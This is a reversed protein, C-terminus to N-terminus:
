SLNIARWLLRRRLRHAFLGAGHFTAGLERLRVLLREGARDVFTLGGLDVDLATGPSTLFGFDEACSGVLRGALRVTIRDNRRIISLMLVIETTAFSSGFQASFVENIMLSNAVALSLVEFDIVAQPCCGSHPRVWRSFLHPRVATFWQHFRLADRISTPGIPERAPTCRHM